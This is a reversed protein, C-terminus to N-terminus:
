NTNLNQNTSYIPQRKVPSVQSPHLKPPLGPLIDLVRDITAWLLAKVSADSPGKRKFSLRIDPKFASIKHRGAVLCCKNRRIKSSGLGLKKTKNQQPKKKSRARKTGDVGREGQKKLREYFKSRESVM